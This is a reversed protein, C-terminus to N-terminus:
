RDVESSTKSGSMIQSLDFLDKRCMPLDIQRKGALDVWDEEQNLEVPEKVAAMREFALFSCFPAMDYTDHDM